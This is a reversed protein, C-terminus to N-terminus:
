INFERGNSKTKNKIEADLLFQKHIVQVADGPMLAAPDSLIHGDKKLIAFGRELIREPSLNQVNHQIGKLQRTELDLIQPLRNILQKELGSANQRETRIIQKPMFTFSLSKEMLDKEFHHLFSGARSSITIKRHELDANRKNLLRGAKSFLDPELAKISNDATKVLSKVAENFYLKLERFRHTGTTLTRIGSNRISSSLDLLRSEFARDHDLIFQAAISPTKTHTHAFFDCIGQNSHHGIGTVVPIPFRAVQLALNFDDFPLFDAPAGGGRTLVMVDYERGSLMVKNLADYLSPQAGYGQVLVNYTDVHYKYGYENNGLSHRFDNYADSHLSTVLAIRQIVRPLILQKNPTIYAGNRFRITEPYEALLKELTQKRQLEIGGLTLEADIECLVLSLGYVPHYNLSVRVGVKIGEKFKQGTKKEFGEIANTGEGWFACSRIQAVKAGRELEILDFYIHAGVKRVGAVEAKIWYSSPFSARVQNQLGTLLQKLSIYTNEPM